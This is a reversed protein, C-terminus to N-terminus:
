RLGAEELGGADTKSIELLEMDLVARSSDADETDSRTGADSDSNDARM